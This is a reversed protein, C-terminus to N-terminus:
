EDSNEDQEGKKHRKDFREHRGKNIKDIPVWGGDIPSYGIFDFHIQRHNYRLMKEHMRDEPKIWGKIDIVWVDGNAYYLDFDSKYTIPRYTKGNLTFRPQLTYQVQREVKTLEGSELMPEIWDRYAQMELESDYVVDKYTRRLKGEASTDVNYKSKKKISKKKM